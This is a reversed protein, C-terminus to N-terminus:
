PAPAAGPFRHATKEWVQAARGTSTSWYRRLARLAALANVLNGVVARPVARLGERWGNARATFLARVALRWGLLGANIALLAALLSGQPALPPMATAGLLARGVLDAAVLPLAAYGLLVLLAALIAKRDRLLMYRDALGGPWGLRDWGALAIGTLWRTKQRVAAALTAPFHEATGILRGDSDRARVLVGRGGLARVKIGLEYDETLCHPDFPAGGGLAAIQAVLDRRIACAVGASPLAAGLAERVVLDKAHNEAFEDLYHGGIWRSGPDCLPLVPLQVLAHTALWHDQLALELPHVVDEADHLVIAAFRRQRAAEDAIVADWLQNLCDAKTTPGPRACLVASVRADGVALVAARTAPDNPYVGVFVHFRPYRQTATLRALMAGIVAAEDWAPVLVALWRPEGAAPAPEPTPVPRAGALRRGIYVLDIFLDDLGSLALGFAALTLLERAALHLLALGTLGDM